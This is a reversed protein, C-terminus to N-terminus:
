NIQVPSFTIVLYLERVIDATLLMAKVELLSPNRGGLGRVQIRGQGTLCAYYKSFKKRTKCQFKPKFTHQDYFLKPYQIYVKEFFSTM